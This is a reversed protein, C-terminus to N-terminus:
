QYRERARSHLIREFEDKEEGELENVKGLSYHNKMYDAKAIIKKAVEVRSNEQEQQRVLAKGIKNQSIETAYISQPIRKNSHIIPEHEYM